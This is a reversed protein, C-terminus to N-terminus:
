SYKAAQAAKFARSELNNLGQNCVTWTNGLNQWVELVTHIIYSVSELTLELYDHFNRSM